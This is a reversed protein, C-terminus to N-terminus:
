RLIKRLANLVDSTAIAEMCAAVKQGTKLCTGTWDNSLWECWHKCINSTLNINEDYGFLDVSTSGFMVVSPGGHLAHRLHVMGGENDVLVAANKLLVKVQEMSTRGILNIDCGESSPAQEKDAGFLVIKYEPFSKKIEPILNACSKLSWGKVHFSTGNTSDWGRHILMFKNKQLSNDNLYNEEDELVPLNYIYDRSIGLYDYCDPEQLRNHGAIVAKASMLGDLRPHKDCELRNENTFKKVLMIYDYLSSSLNKAMLENANKIFPFSCIFITACYEDARYEGSPLFRINAENQTFISFVSKSKYFIDIKDNESFIKQKLYELWNAIVLYDGYGGSILIAVKPVKKNKIPFCRINLLIGRM